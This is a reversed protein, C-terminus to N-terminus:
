LVSCLQFILTPMQHSYTDEWLGRFDFCKMLMQIWWIMREASCFRHACRYKLAAANRGQCVKRSFQSGTKFGQYRDPDYHTGKGLSRVGLDVTIKFDTSVM